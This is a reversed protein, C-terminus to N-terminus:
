VAARIGAAPPACPKLVLPQCCRALTARLKADVSADAPGGGEPSAIVQLDAIYQNIQSQASRQAERLSAIEDARIALESDRAALERQLQTVTGQLRQNEHALGQPLAPV